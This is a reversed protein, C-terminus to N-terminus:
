FDYLIVSIDFYQYGTELHTMRVVINKTETGIVHGKMSGYKQQLDLIPPEINLVSDIKNNEYDVISNEIVVVKGDFGKDLFVEVEFPNLLEYKLPSNNYFFIDESLLKIPEEFVLHLNKDFISSKIQPALTDKEFNAIFEFSPMFYFELRNYHEINLKISDGSSYKGSKKNSDIYVSKMSEDSLTLSAHNSNLMKASVINTKYLPDSMMLKLDWESINNNISINQSQMAYRNLRYDYDFNNLNGEICAVRYDGYDINIFEFEGNINAEIKKVISVSDNIVKYLGVEYIKDNLTNILEGRILGDKIKESPDRYIKTVSQDMKNEQYDQIRRSIYLEVIDDWYDYPKIIIKNKYARLKFNDDQNIRIASSISNPDINEDFEIIISENKSLNESVPTISIIIPGKDDIPGGSPYGQSACSAVILWLIIVFCNKMKIIYSIYYNFM